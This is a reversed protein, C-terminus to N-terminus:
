PLLDSLGHKLSAKRTVSKTNKQAKHPPFKQKNLPLIGNFLFARTPCGRRRM